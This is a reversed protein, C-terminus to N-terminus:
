NAYIMDPKMISLSLDNFESPPCVPTASEFVKISAEASGLKNVAKCKYEGYQNEKLSVVRLTSDTYRFINISSTSMHKIFWDFLLNSMLQRSTQFKTNRAMQYCFTM